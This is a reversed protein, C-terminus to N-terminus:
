KTLLSYVVTNELKLQILLQLYRIKIFTISTKVADRTNTYERVIQAELTASM